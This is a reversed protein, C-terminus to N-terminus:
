ADRGERIWDIAAQMGDPSWGALYDLMSRAERPDPDLDLLQKHAAMAAGHHTAPNYTDPM